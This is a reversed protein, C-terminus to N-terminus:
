LHCENIIYDITTSGSERTDMDGSLTIYSKAPNTNTTSVSMLNNAPEVNGDEWLKLGLISGDFSFRMLYSTNASLAQNGSAINVGDKQLLHTSSNSAALRAVFGDKAGGVSGGSCNVGYIFAGGNGVDNVQSLKFKVVVNFTDRHGIDSSATPNQGPNGTWSTWAYNNDTINWNGLTGYNTWTNGLLNNGLNGSPRDFNDLVETTNNDIVGNCDNDLGDCVELIPEGPVASCIVDLDDESCATTGTSNCEGVGVSCSTNVNFNEDAGDRCNNDIYDCLEFAGPHVTTNNDDCDSNNLAYRSPLSVGACVMIMEGSGFGDNDSDLYATLYRWLSADTDDCDGISCTSMDAVYGSPATCALIANDINGIGDSDSDLYFASLAGDDVLGNCNNDIGDCLEPMAPNISPDNDNCDGQGSGYRDGDRDTPCSGLYDRHDLHARVTTPNIWITSGSHCIPFNRNCTYNSNGLANSNTQISNIEVPQNIPHDDSTCSLPLVVLSFYMGARFLNHRLFHQTRLMFSSINHQTVKELSM